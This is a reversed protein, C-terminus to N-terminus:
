CVQIGYTRYGHSSDSFDFATSTYQNVWPEGPAPPGQFTSVTGTTQNNIYSGVGTLGYDHVNVFQCYYFDVRSGQGAPGEWVCLYGEPCPEAMAAFESSAGPQAQPRPTSAASASGFLGVVAMAMTTACVAVARGIRARWHPSAGM